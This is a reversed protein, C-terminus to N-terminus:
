LLYGPPIIYNLIAYAFIFMILAIVNSRIRAIAHETGQPEGRSSMYQLGAIVMSAVIVLGVGLSLFRILSFILDTIPSTSPCTSQNVEHNPCNSGHCGFDISTQVTDSGIGCQYYATKVTTNLSNNSSSPLSTLGLISFGLVVIALLSVPTLKTKIIM